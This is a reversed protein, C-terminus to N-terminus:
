SFTSGYALGRQLNRKVLSSLGLLQALWKRRMRSADRTLQPDAPDLACARRAARYGQRYHGLRELLSAKLRYCVCNGASLSLARDAWHLAEWLREQKALLQALALSDEVQPKSRHALKLGSEIAALPDTETDRVSRLRDWLRGEIRAAQAALEANDPALSLAHRAAGLAAEIRGQRELVQALLCQYQTTDTAAADVLSARDLAGLAEHLSGAAAFHRALLQWDEASASPHQALRLAAAIAQQPAHANGRTNRLSHLLAQEVRALDARLQANGPELALAATASQLAEELRGMRELLSARLRLYEVAAPEQTLSRDVWFLAEALREAKALLHAAAIWDQVECAGYNVQKLAACIAASLDSATERQQRALQVVLQSAVPQLLNISWEPDRVLNRSILALVPSCQQLSEPDIQTTM